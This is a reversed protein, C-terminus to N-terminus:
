RGVDLYDLLEAAEFGSPLRSRDFWNSTMDGNDSTIMDELSASKTAHISHDTDSVRRYESYAIQLTPMAVAIVIAIVGIRIARSATRDNEAAAQEFKLLFEAASAQLGTAIQAGETAVNQLQDFRSEIRALRKNTENLPNPPLPPLSPVRVVKPVDGDLSRSHEFVSRSAADMSVGSKLADIAVQQEGIRKSLRGLPTEEGALLGLSRMRDTLENAPAMARRLSDLASDNWPKALEESANSPLIEQLRFSDMQKQLAQLPSTSLAARELQNKMMEAAPDVVSM